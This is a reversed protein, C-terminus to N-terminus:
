NGTLCNNFKFYAKDWSFQQIFEFGNVAIEIRLEDNDILESVSNVLGVVSGIESVLATQRHKAMTLYGGTNTCAVSAGCSMAEGVTLGFGESHSTGIFISARNFLDGLLAESPLQFYEIWEPLNNPRGPCGFWLSKMAPYKKKLILLAQLGDDCGKLKQKHYLMMTTYKDREHIPVIRKLAKRDVGNEILVADEGLSKVISLLWESIVIKKLKLKWTALAAEKGWQWDEIAQILYFKKTPEISKYSDLFVATEMATAFYYDAKPIFKENLNLAFVSKINADLAFWKTVGKRKFFLYYLFFFCMKMKRKISSRLFYLFYPYVLTVAYGDAVLRNSYEFVVKYGGIPKEYYEPLLFVIHKNM